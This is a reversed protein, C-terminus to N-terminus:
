DFVMEVERPLIWGRKLYHVFVIPVYEGCDTLLYENMCSFSSCWIIVFIHEINSVADRIELEPERLGSNSTRVVAGSCPFKYKM